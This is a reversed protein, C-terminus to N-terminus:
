KKIMKNARRKVKPQTIMSMDDNGEVSCAEDWCFLDRQFCLPSYSISTTTAATEEHKGLRNERDIARDHLYVERRAMQLRKKKAPRKEKKHSSSISRHVRPMLCVERQTANTTSHVPASRYRERSGAPLLPRFPSGIICLMDECAFYPNDGADKFICHAVSRHHAKLTRILARGCPQHHFLQVQDSRLKDSRLKTLIEEFFSLGGGSGRPPPFSFVRSARHRANRDPKQVSVWM